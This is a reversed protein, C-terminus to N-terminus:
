ELLTNRQQSYYKLVTKSSKYTFILKSYYTHQKLQTLMTFSCFSLKAFTKIFCFYLIFLMKIWCVSQISQRPCSSFTCISKLSIKKKKPPPPLTNSVNQPPPTPYQFCKRPPPLTNSVNKADSCGRSPLDSAWPKCFILINKYSLLFLLFMKLYTKKLVKYISHKKFFTKKSFIITPFVAQLAAVLRGVTNM